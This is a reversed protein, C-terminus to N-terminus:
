GTIRKPERVCIFLIVTGVACAAALYLYMQRIGVLGAVQGALLPGAAFALAGAANLISQGTARYRDPTSDTIFAFPVIALVSFTLGHTAQLALVPWPSSLLSYAALRLPLVAFAIRLPLVRGWRDAAWGAIQLFPLEIGASIMFAVPLLWRPPTPEFSVLYLSLNASMSMLTMYALFYAVVFARLNRDALIEAAGKLDFRGRAPSAAPRRVLLVAAGALVASLSALVFLQPSRTTWPVLQVLAMVALFGVTGWTRVTAFSRGAAGRAFIDMGLAGAVTLSVGVGASAMTQLIAFATFSRLYPYAAYCGAMLLCGAMILSRRHGTRDSWSGAPVLVIAGGAQGLAILLGIQQYSFGIAKWHLPLYPALFGVVCFFGFYFGSLGVRDRLALPTPSTEM